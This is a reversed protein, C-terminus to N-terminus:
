SFITTVATWMCLAAGAVGALMTLVMALMRINFNTKLISSVHLGRGVALCLGVAHISWYPAGSLEAIVMLILVMPVTEVFNGHVRIRRKLDEDGDDGLSVKAERRRQVVYLTLAYQFIVFLAAYIGTVM